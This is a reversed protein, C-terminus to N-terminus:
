SRIEALNKKMEVAMHAATADSRLWPPPQLAMSKIRQLMERSGCKVSQWFLSLFWFKDLFYFLTYLEM